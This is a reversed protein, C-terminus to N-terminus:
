NGSPEAAGFLVDAVAQGARIGGHWAVLLATAQEVLRPIVLPRGTMLVVVLPTGSAALGDLLEQQGDPLGLHVRSHAEGSFGAPEGVVAVVVDAGVIRGWRPDRCVDVMPAFIWDTGNASAEEAAVSAARELLDPDWTCAEALPVPFITRYGHIM